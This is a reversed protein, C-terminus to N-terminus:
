ELPPVANVHEVLDIVEPHFATYATYTDPLLDAHEHVRHSNGENTGILAHHLLSDRLAAADGGITRGIM